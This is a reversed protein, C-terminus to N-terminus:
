AAESDALGRVDIQGTVAASILASRREQFLTIARQAEAILLDFRNTEADLAAAIAAAQGEAQGQHGARDQGGGRARARDQAARSCRRATPSERCAPASRGSYGLQEAEKRVEKEIKKWEVGFPPNSAMSDFKKDPLGDESLTNGQIINAIDQGKILM